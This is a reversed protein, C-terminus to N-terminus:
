PHGDDGDAGSEDVRLLEAALDDGPVGVAGHLRHAAPLAHDDGVVECLAETNADPVLHSERGRCTNLAKADRRDHRGVVAAILPGDNEVAGPEGPEPLIGEDTM